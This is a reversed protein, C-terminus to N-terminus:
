QKLDKKLEVLNNIMKCLRMIDHIADFYIWYEPQCSTEGKAINALLGSISECADLTSAVIGFKELKEIQIVM